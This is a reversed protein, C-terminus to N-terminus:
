SFKEDRWSYKPEWGFKDKALDILIPSNFGDIKIQAFIVIKTHM